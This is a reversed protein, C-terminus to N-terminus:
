RSSDDAVAKDDVRPVGNVLHVAEVVAQCIAQGAPPLLRCSAAMAAAGVYVVVRQFWPRRWFPVATSPTTSSTPPPTPSSTAPTTNEIRNGAM